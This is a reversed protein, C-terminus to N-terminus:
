GKVSGSTMGEIFKRNFVLYLACVPLMSFVSATYIRAMNSSYQGTFKVFRTAVTKMTDTTIFTNSWLYENWVSVFVLLAVTLFISKAIPVTIRFFSGLESCGDIKAAEEIEHPIGSFFTKLLIINFPIQMASYPIILSWYTDILGVKNMVSFLPIIFLFGPISIAAFFYGEIVSKFRFNLKSLAYAGLGDAMLVIVIVIAAIIFTNIYAQGYGGIKWTDAYNKLYTFDPIGIPMSKCQADPRFSNSLVILLPGIALVALLIVFLWKFFSFVSRNRAEKRGTHVSTNETM